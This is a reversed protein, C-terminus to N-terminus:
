LGVIEEIKERVEFFDASKNILQIYQSLDSTSLESNKDLFLLTPLKTEYIKKMLMSELKDNESRDLLFINYINKTILSNSEIRNKAVTVKYGLDDLITAIIKSETPNQKYLLIKKRKDESNDIQENTSLYFQKVVTVFKHISIPKSIYEDMGAELYRERDGKLTNTTVAIIPIHDLKNLQEYKLIEKTAIVGNMVPMQIDMFVLDYYERKFMEVGLEGNVASDSIVGITKLTHQILKLNVLNDEIVLAKLNFHNEEPKPVVKDIKKSSLEITKKVKSLTIPEYIIQTFIPSIDLIKDRNALKTVLVIKIDSSYQAVIRQLEEKNIEDYHLYLIEFSGVRADKCAVFTEFYKVSVGHLYQLYDELHQNSLKSQVSRPAYIAVNLLKNEKEKKGNEKPMELTFSVNTGKGEVSDLKLKGGLMNIWDHSITLGLGIGGYARTSSNDAQTFASFVQKQQLESIGIGTDNVMFKIVIKDSISSVKEISVDICGQEKTFKIANSILNMLVQKIKELDSKLELTEFLPDIWFSFEIEKKSADLAYIDSLNEFELLMNFCKEELEIQGSQIKSVDLVNSVIGLLNESSKRITNLFDVQENDLNTSSLLKTFGVIGNIPTRIEHSMNSLFLTKAENAEDALSKSSQLENIMNSILAYIETHNKEKLMLKFQRVKDDDSSSKIEELLNELASTNDQTKMFFYDRKLFIIVLSLFLIFGAIFMIIKHEFAKDAENIEFLIYNNYSTYLILLSSVVLLTFISLTIVELRREKWLSNM